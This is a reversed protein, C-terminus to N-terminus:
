RTLKAGARDPIDLATTGIDTLTTMSNLHVNMKPSRAATIVGRLELRYKVVVGDRLWLKFDGSSALAEVGTHDTRVLLLAAGLDSLTGTVVGGAIDMKTFCSVLIGLEEHPRTVMSQLVSFVHDPRQEGLFPFAPGVSKGGPVGFGGANASGRVLPLSRPAPNTERAAPLEEVSKWDDGLRVIGITGARFLVELQTDAERGLRRAVSRMM